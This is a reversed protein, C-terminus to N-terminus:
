GGIHIVHPLYRLLLLFLHSLALAKPWLLLKLACPLVQRGRGFHCAAAAETTYPDRRPRHPCIYAPLVGGM